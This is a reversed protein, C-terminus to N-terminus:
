ALGWEMMELLNKVRKKHCTLLQERAKTYRYIGTVQKRASPSPPLKSSSDCTRMQVEKGLHNELKTVGLSHSGGMLNKIEKFFTTIASLQPFSNIEGM